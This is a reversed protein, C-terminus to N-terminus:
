AARIFMNPVSFSAYRSSLDLSQVSHCYEANWFHAQHFFLRELVKQSGVALVSIEHAAKDESRVTFLGDVGRSHIVGWDYRIRQTLRVPTNAALTHPLDCLPYPLLTERHWQFHNVQSLNYYEERWLKCCVRRHVCACSVARCHVHCHVVICVHCHAGPQAIHMSPWNQM